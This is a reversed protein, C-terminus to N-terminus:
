RRLRAAQRRRTHTRPAPPRDAQRLGEPLVSLRPPRAPLEIPFRKTPPKAQLVSLSLIGNQNQPCQSMSM